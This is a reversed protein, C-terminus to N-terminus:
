GHCICLIHTDPRYVPIQGLFWCRSGTCCNWRLHNKARNFLILYNKHM